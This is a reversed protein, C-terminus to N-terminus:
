WAQSSAISPSARRPRAASGITASALGAGAPTARRTTRCSGPCAEDCILDPPRADADIRDIRPLHGAARAFARTDAVDFVAPPEIVLFQDRRADGPEGEARAPDCSWPVATAPMMTPDSLPTPVIPTGSAASSRTFEIVGPLDERAAMLKAVALKCRALGCAAMDDQEFRRLVEEGRRGGVNQDFETRGHLGRDPKGHSAVDGHDLRGAVSAYVQVIKRKERM